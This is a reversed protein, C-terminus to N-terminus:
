YEPSSFRDSEIHLVAQIQEWTVPGPRLILLEDGTCDLVTSPTGGPTRGGDLIIPIRGQLQNLVEQALCTSPMGSLNASTVAM